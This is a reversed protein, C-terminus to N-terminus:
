QVARCPVFTHLYFLLMTCLRLSGDLAYYKLRIGLPRDPGREGGKRTESRQKHEGCHLAAMATEDRTEGRIANCQMASIKQLSHASMARPQQM